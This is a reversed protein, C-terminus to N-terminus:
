GSLGSGVRLAFVSTAKAKTYEEALSARFDAINRVEDAISLSVELGVHLLLPVAFSKRRLKFANKPSCARVRCQAVENSHAEEARLYKAAQDAVGSNM